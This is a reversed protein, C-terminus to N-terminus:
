KAHQIARALESIPVCVDTSMLKKGPYSHVYSYALNHRADWLKNRAATEMEFAIEICKHDLVIEKTFEIDQKLGAENGHFELFLTPEERYSTENYHNVQKMSLEDVLEIRAIPIGAQLINIVAEVADNITPFSARAAMVHEPIGYVKLTLETFCGLTGESGVFIGNLH